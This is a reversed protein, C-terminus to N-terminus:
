GADAPARCPPASAHHGRGADRLKAAYPRQVVPARGPEGERVKVRLVGTEGDRLGAVSKAAYEGGQGVAEVDVVGVVDAVGLVLRGPKTAAADPKSTGGVSMVFRGSSARAKM